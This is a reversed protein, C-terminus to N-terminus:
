KKNKNEKKKNKNEMNELDSFDRIVCFFTLVCTYQIGRALVNTGAKEIVNLCEEQLKTLRFGKQSIGDDKQDIDM